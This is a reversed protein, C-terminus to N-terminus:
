SNQELGVQLVSLYDELDIGRCLRYPFNRSGATLRSTNLGHDGGREQAPAHVSRLEFQLSAVRRAVM